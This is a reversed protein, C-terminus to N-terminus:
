SPQHRSPMGRTFVTKNMTKVAEEALAVAYNQGRDHPYVQFMNAMYLGPVPTRIPPLRRAYGPTVIPQAFPASFVWADTIWSRDFGPRIRALHPKFADIVGDRDLRLLPDDPARYNGVYVLHRGGYDSTPMFNTHEVVVMFPYGPDAINIWYSGTLPRDLALVLCHASLAPGPDHRRLFDGPLDAALRCTLRTPLTSLVQGFVRVESGAAHRWEVGLGDDTRQVRTAEAGLQVEGGLRRIEDVLRSYLQQFGGRLYGLEATRDHVRAWFWPLAISESAAGFKGALLPAWITEYGSRGMTRRLWTAAGRGELLRSDPLTRLFALVAGMRLRDIPSLPDFRLLSLASDLQHVSGERLTVTHPRRWILRGALGLERILGQVARDSRFLHHYFKELGVGPCVEFGAALGGPLSERELVTVLWGSQELRLGATLGLLGAGLM